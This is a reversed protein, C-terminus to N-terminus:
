GITVKGPKACDFWNGVPEWGHGHPSVREKPRPRTTDDFIM